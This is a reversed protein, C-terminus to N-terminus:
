DTRTRNEMQLMDESLARDSCAKEVSPPFVHSTFQILLYLREAFQRVQCKTDGGGNVARAGMVVAIETSDPIGSSLCGTAGLM